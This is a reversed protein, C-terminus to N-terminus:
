PLVEYGSSRGLQGRLHIRLCAQCGAHRSAAPVRAGENAKRWVEGEAGKKWAAFLVPTRGRGSLTEGSPVSVQSGGPGTQAGTEQGASGQRPLPM